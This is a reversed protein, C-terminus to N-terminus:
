VPKFNVQMKCVARACVDMDDSAIKKGSVDPMARYLQRAM